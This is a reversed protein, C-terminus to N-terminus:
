NLATYKQQLKALDDYLQSLAYDSLKPLIVQNYIFDSEKFGYEVIATKVSNVANKKDNNKYYTNALEIYVEKLNSDPNSKIFQKYTKIAETYNGEDFYRRAQSLISDNVIAFNFQAFLVFILTLINKKM